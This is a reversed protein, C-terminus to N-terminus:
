NEHSETNSQTLPLNAMTQSREKTMFTMYIGVIVFVLLFTILAIILYVDAGEVFGIMRGM